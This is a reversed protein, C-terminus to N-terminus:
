LLLCVSFILSWQEASWMSVWITPMTPMALIDYDVQGYLSYKTYQIGHEIILMICHFGKIKLSVLNNLLRRLIAERRPEKIKFTVSYKDYDVYRCLSWIHEKLLM